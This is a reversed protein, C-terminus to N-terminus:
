SFCTSCTSGELHGLAAANSVMPPCISTVQSDCVRQPQCIEVFHHCNNFYEIVATLWSTVAWFIREKSVKDGAQTLSCVKGIEM